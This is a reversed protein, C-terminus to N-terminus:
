GLNTKGVVDRRNQENGQNATVLQWPSSKPYVNSHMDCLWNAGVSQSRRHIEKESGPLPIQENLLLLTHTYKHTQSQKSTCNQCPILCFCFDKLFVKLKQNFFKKGKGRM